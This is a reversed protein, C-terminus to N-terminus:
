AQKLHEDLLVLLDNLAATSGARAEAVLRDPSSTSGCEASMVQAGMERGPFCAASVRGIAVVQCNSKDVRPTRVDSANNSISTVM